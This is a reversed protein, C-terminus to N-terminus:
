GGGERQELRARERRRGWREGGCLCLVCVCVCVCERLELRAVVLLELVDEGEEGADGGAAAAAALCRGM